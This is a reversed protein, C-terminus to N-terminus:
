SLMRVIALTRNERKVSSQAYTTRDCTNPKWKKVRLRSQAHMRDCTNPKWKKASLRSRANKRDYTTPDPRSWRLFGLHSGSSSKIHKRDCTNQKRMQCKVSCICYIIALTINEGNSVQCLLGCAENPDVNHSFLTSNVQNAYRSCRLGSEGSQAADSREATCPPSAAYVVERNLSISM